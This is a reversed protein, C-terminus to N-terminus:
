EEEGGDYRPLKLKRERKKKQIRLEKQLKNETQPEQIVFIEIVRKIVTQKKLVQDVQEVTSDLLKESTELYKTSQEKLGTPIEFQM